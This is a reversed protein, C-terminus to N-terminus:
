SANVGIGVRAGLQEDARGQNVALEILGSSNEYWFPAGAPVDSFTRQAHLAHGNVHIVRTTDLQSARIGTVANGYRDVYVVRFLDNPWGPQEVSGAPVPRADVSQGSALWAAVPAFVDRGHFSSSVGSAPPLEHCEVREARRAVLAFLGENPGVFWRDDAKLIVAPREGGVGPDVVCLFVTGAPFGPTYAPLLYAAAQVDFAALDSFLNIVPVDPALQLLRAHVQGTYPGQLGFDTFLVIM